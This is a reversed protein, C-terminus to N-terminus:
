NYFSVWFHALTNINFTREITEDATEMITQGSLIGANNILVSVDGVEQKVKEAVRYIDERKSCDCVYAHVNAGTELCIEDVVQKLKEEQIDLLVLVAHRRALEKAFLRGLGQAAGTVLCIDRSFDLQSRRGTCSSFCAKLTDWIFFFICKLIYVVALCLESM